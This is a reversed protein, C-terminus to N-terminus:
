GEGIIRLTRRKSLSERYVAAGGDDDDDYGDDYEGSGWDGSDDDDGFGADERAQAEMDLKLQDLLYRVTHKAKDGGALITRMTENFEDEPMHVLKNYLHMTLESQEIDMADTYSMWLGRGIITSWIEHDLLDAQNIVEQRMDDDDPLGAASMMEMMGKVIEQVLVPFIQGRADVAYVGEQIQAEGLSEEYRLRASGAMAQGGGRLAMMQMEEPMILYGMEAFAMVLGYLNCLSPDIEDLESQVLHFAYNKSIASGQIMANIFRRKEVARKLADMDFNQESESMRAGELDAMGLSANIRFEGNRYPEEFKSFEPLMFVLKVALQELEGKHQQEISQATILARQAQAMVTMAQSRDNLRFDRGTIRTMYTQLREITKKYQESTLYEEYNGAQSREGPEYDPFAPNDRYPHERGALKRQRGPDVYNPYDGTDLAM